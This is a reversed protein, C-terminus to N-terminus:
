SSGDPLHRITEAARAIAEGVGRSKPAKSLTLVAHGLPYLAEPMGISRVADLAASAVLLSGRDAEGIDESAFRVLRRAVFMPDEGGNIMHTMWAM